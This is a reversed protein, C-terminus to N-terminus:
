LPLAEQALMQDVATAMESKFNKDSLKAAKLETTTRIFKTGRATRGLGQVVLKGRSRKVEVTGIGNSM